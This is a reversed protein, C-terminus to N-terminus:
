RDFSYPIESTDAPLRWHDPDEYTYARDVLNLLLGPTDSINQVGHWVGPPVVVLGPRSSGLRFENIRGFTPSEGRADYLVIKLLGHNVFLRDTTFQHVHWANVGAPPLMVQFVQDVEACDPTWERRFIECLVGGDSKCVNKVERLIVGDIPELLLEWDATISQRDKKAGDLVGDPRKSAAAAEKESM